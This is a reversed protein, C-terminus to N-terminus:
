VDRPDVSLHPSTLAAGFKIDRFRRRGGLMTIPGPKGYCCNWGGLRACVWAGRALSGKPHPDQQKATKGPRGRDDPERREQRSRGRSRGDGALARKGEGRDPAGQRRGEQREAGACRSATAAGAQSFISRASVRANRLLRTNRIEGARDGGLRRISIGKCGMEILRSRLFIGGTKWAITASGDRCFSAWSGGEVV